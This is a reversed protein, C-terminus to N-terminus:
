SVIFPNGAPINEPWQFARLCQTSSNSTCVFVYNKYKKESENKQFIKDIDMIKFKIEMMKFKIEMIKFKIKMMKFKREMMKFKRKMM